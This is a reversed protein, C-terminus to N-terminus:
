SKQQEFFQLFYEADKDSLKIDGLSRHLYVNNEMKYLDTQWEQYLKDKSVPVITLWTIDKKKYDVYTINPNDDYKELLNSFKDSDINTKKIEDDNNNLYCYFDFNSYNSYFDILDDVFETDCYLARNKSDAYVKFDCDNEVEYLTYQNEDGFNAFPELVAAYDSAHLLYNDKQVLSYQKGEIILYDYRYNDKIDNETDIEAKIGTDVDDYYRGETFLVTKVFFGVTILLVVILIGIIIFYKKM